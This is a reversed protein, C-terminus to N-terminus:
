AELCGSSSLWSTGGKHTSRYFLYELVFHVLIHVPQGTSGDVQCGSRCYLM